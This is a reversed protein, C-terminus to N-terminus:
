LVDLANLNQNKIESSFFLNNCDKQHFPRNIRWQLKNAAATHTTTPPKLSELNHSLVM